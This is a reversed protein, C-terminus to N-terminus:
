APPIFITVYAEGEGSLVVTYDGTTLVDAYWQGPRGGRITPLPVSGPGMVVVTIEHEGLASVYIRQGAMVRLVYGQPTGATLVTTFEYSANGPAFQIRTIPM